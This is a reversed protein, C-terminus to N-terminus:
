ATYQLKAKISHPETHSHGTDTDYRQTVNKVSAVSASHSNALTILNVIMIRLTTVNLTSVSLTTISLTMISSTIAGQIPGLTLEIFLKCSQSVTTVFYIEIVHIDTPSGTLKKLNCRYTLNCNYNVVMFHKYFTDSNCLQTSWLKWM